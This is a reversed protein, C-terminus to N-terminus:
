SEIVPKRLTVAQIRLYQAKRFIGRSRVLRAFFAREDEDSWTTRRFWDDKSM